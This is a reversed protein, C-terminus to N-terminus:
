QEKVRTCYWTSPRARLSRWRVRASPLTRHPVGVVYILMPVALISGGGGTLGLVLGVVAGAMMGLSLTEM